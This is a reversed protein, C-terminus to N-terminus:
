EPRMFPQRASLIEADSEVMRDKVHRALKEIQALKAREAVTLGEGNGAQVEADLARVLAVLKATDAVLAKQRAANMARARRALFGPDNELPSDSINGLSRTGVQAAPACCMMALMLGCVLRSRM